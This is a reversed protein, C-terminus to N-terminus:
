RAAQEILERQFNSFVSAEPWAPATAILEMAKRARGQDVHIIALGYRMAWHVLPHVRSATGLREVDGDQSCHAFARALASAGHRLALARRRAWPSSPLPLSILARAKFLAREREGEFTDILTEVFLRHDMADDWARGREAWLMAARARETLGHAALATARVLPGVTRYHPLNEMASNWVELIETVNGSSLLRRLRTRALWQPALLAAGCLAAIIGVIPQQWTARIVAVCALASLVMRLWGYGRASSRLGDQPPRPL